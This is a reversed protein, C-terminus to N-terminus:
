NNNLQAFIEDFTIFSDSYEITYSYVITNSNSTNTYTYEIYTCKGESFTIKVNTYDQGNFNVLDTEYQETESNFTFKSYDYKTSYDFAFNILNNYTSESAPSYEKKWKSSTRNYVDIRSEEKKYLTEGVSGTPVGAKLTITKCYYNEGDYKFIQNTEGNQKLTITVTDSTKCNLANIWDEESSIKAGLEAGCGTLSFMCPILLCIALVFNLIKRKM